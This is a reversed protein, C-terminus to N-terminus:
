EPVNGVFSCPTVYCFCQEISFVIPNRYVTVDSSHVRTRELTEFSDVPEMKVSYKPGKVRIATAYIEEESERFCEIEDRVFKDVYRVFRSSRDEPNYVCKETAQKALEEVTFNSLTHEESVDAFKCRIGCTLINRVATLLGESIRISIHFIRSATSYV